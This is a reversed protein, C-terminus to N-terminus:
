GIHTTSSAKPADDINAWKQSEFEESCPHIHTTSYSRFPVVSGARVGSVVFSGQWLSYGFPHFFQSKKEKISSL